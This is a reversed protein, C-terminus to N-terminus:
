RFFVLGAYFLLCFAGLNWRVVLVGLLLWEHM